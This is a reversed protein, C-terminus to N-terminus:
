FLSAVAAAVGLAAAIAILVTSAHDVDQPDEDRWGLPSWHKMFRNRLDMDVRETNRKHRNSLKWAKLGDRRNDRLSAVRDRALELRFLRDTDEPSMEGATFPVDIPRGTRQEKTEMLLLIPAGSGQCM